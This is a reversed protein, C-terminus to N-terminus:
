PQTRAEDRKFASRIPDDGQYIPMNGGDWLSWPIEDLIYCDWRHREQDAAVCVPWTRGHKSTVLVIFGPKTHPPLSAFAGLVEWKGDDMARGVSRSPPNDRIFKLLDDRTWIRSM